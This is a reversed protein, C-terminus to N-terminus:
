ITIQAMGALPHGDVSRDLALGLLGAGASAHPVTPRRWLSRDSWGKVQFGPHLKGLDHLFVLAALRARDTGTLGRGAADALRRAIVPQGTLAEFVAAVDMSHCTLAHWGHADTKGWARNM